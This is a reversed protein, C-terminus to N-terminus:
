YPIVRPIDDESQFSKPKEQISSPSIVPGNDGFMAGFANVPSPSAQSSPQQEGFINQQGPSDEFINPQREPYQGSIFSSLLQIAKRIEESSDEKTDITLKM